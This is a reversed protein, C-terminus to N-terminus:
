DDFSLTTSESDDLPLVLGAENCRKNMATDIVGPHATVTRVHPSGAAIYDLIKVAALKNINYTGIGTHLAGIHAGATGVNILRPNDVANALFAQAVIL